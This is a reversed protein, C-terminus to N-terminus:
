EDAGRDKKILELQRNLKDDIIQDTECQYYCQKVQEIIIEVDAIKSFLNYVTKTTAGHWDVDSTANILETCEKILRRLQSTVGYHELITHCTLKQKKTM